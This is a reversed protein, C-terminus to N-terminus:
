SNKFQIYRAMFYFYNYADAENAFIKTQLHDGTHYVFVEWSGNNNDKISLTGEKFPERISYIGDSIGDAQLKRILDNKNMRIKEFEKIERFQIFYNIIKEEFRKWTCSPYGYKHSLDQDDTNISGAEIFNGIFSLREIPIDKLKTSTLELEFCDPYFFDRYSTPLFEVDELKYFCVENNWVRNYINIVPIIHEPWMTNNEKKKFVVYMGNFGKEKSYESVFQYAFVDGIEWPCVFSKPKSIKKASPMPSLLRKELENLIEKRQLFDKEKAQERWKKLDGGTALHKLAMEKVENILRGKQWQIDALAFWFVPGEDDDKIEDSYMSILSSTIDANDKGGLLETVYYERVDQALDDQYLKPGWTGM